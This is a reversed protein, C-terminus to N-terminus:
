ALLGWLREVLTLTNDRTKVAVRFSRRDSGQYNSCDRVTIGRHLM